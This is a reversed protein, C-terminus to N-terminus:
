RALSILPAELGKFISRHAHQRAGQQRGPRAACRRGAGRVALRPRRGAPVEHDADKLELAVPNSASYPVPMDWVLKMGLSAAQNRASELM